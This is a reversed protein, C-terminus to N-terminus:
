NVELYYLCSKEAAKEMLKARNHALTLARSINKYHPTIMLLTKVRELASNEVAKPPVTWEMWGM